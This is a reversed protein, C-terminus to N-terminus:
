DNFAAAIDEPSIQVADAMARHSVHCVDYPLSRNACARGFGAMIQAAIAFAQETQRRDGFMFEYHHWGRPEHHEIRAAVRAHAPKASVDAHAPRTERHEAVRAHAPAQTQSQPKPAAAVAPHDAAAMASQCRASLSSRNARMCATVRAIDPIEGSCFRLADPTCAARQEATYDMAKASLPLSALAVAAIKVTIRPLTTRFFNSRTM